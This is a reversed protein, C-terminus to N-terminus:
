VHGGYGKILASLTHSRTMNTMSDYLQRSGAICHYEDIDDIHDYSSTEVPTPSCEDTNMLILMDAYGTSDNTAM